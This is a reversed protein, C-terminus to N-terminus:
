ESTTTQEKEESIRAKESAIFRRMERELTPLPVSGLTLLTDHFPRQDFDDGLEEEAESRLRRITLEGLKYALAQGPWAIYRDVENKIDLPALATHDTLYDVAQQRSWGMSHMGTDIVLRAARWMEFTERGFEEYPTKYIGMKSGLWECYLGWGEGYGSFYTSKRFDPRDPAELAYAAQFSHGPNCEHLTLAPIAYLPRQPLDYTNMLCSDLGGRGSTYIPAIEDPVPLITFRYRPLRNFTDKLRGDMKKAVYASLSLLEKPTEAYFQPDTRLFELFESFSGDFGADRITQKMDADIRAVEKLGIAHIEAPTLDLTTYHRIQDQYFAKGDPLSYADITDRAGPIYEERMFALLKTYAPVITNDITKLAEAQLAERREPAINDPMEAFAKYFPNDKGPRTFPVITEDRGQLSVKPVTYGRALGRRMNAINEAFFRPIDRMRGLYLTYDDAGSYPTRPNIGAWFFTDSNLPAEYTKYEIDSVQQWLWTRFVDANIQEEHSLQGPPIADIKEILGAWYDHRRQQSEPTVSPLHDSPGGRSNDPTEPLRAMEKMRWPWEAEYLAKLQLDAASSPVESQAPTSDQAMVAVPATSSVLTLALAAFFTSRHPM